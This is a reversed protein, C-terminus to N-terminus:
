KGRHELEYKNLISSLSQYYANLDKLSIKPHKPDFDSQPVEDLFKSLEPFKLKIISTVRLIKEILAQSTAAKLNANKVKQSLAANENDQDSGGNNEHTRAKERNTNEVNSGKM